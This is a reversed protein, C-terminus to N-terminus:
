RVLRLVVTALILGVAVFPLYWRPPWKV